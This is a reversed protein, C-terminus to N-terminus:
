SGVLLQRVEGTEADVEVRATYDPGLTNPANTAAFTVVWVPGKREVNVPHNKRLRMAKSAAAHAIKLAQSQPIM